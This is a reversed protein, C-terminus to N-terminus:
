KLYKEVIKQYEGEKKIEDLANQLTQILSDPTDKHLVYYLEGKKLTYVVEYEDPAFGKAKIEWKVANEEYAFLDIRNKNLKRISQHIVDVGGIRDLKILPIRANVLLQEGIDDIVVGTRYNIIDVIKNIKINKEKRAFVSITTPTIPGVWKFHKEREKTRTTSFLVTNKKNLVTRYGRAWPMLKIDDRTLKSNLKKLMLVTLDVSIGKLEEKEEYNYPPYIETMIKLDNVSQALLFSPKSFGIILALTFILPIYKKKNMSIKEEILSNM